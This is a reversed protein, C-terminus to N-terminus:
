VRGEGVGTERGVLAGEGGGILEGGGGQGHSSGRSRHGRGVIRATLFPCTRSSARRAAGQQEELVRRGALGKGRGRMGVHRGKREAAGAGRVKRIAKPSM